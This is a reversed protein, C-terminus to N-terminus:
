QSDLPRVTLQYDERIRGESDLLLFVRAAWAVDDTEPTILTITFTVIDDHCGADGDHAARYRGNGIFERYADAIRADLEDLGVFRAGEVYEVGDVAWLEAISRRRLLADSENWVATYREAIITAEDTRGTPPTTNTM